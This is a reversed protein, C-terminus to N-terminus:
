PHLALNPWVSVRLRLDEENPKLYVLNPHLYNNKLKDKIDM